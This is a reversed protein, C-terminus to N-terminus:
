YALADQMVHNSYQRGNCHCFVEILPNALAEGSPDLPIDPM